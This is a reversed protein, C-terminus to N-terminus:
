APVPARRQLAAAAVLLVVAGAVGAAGDVWLMATRGWHDAVWGDAQFMAYIPVNSLSALVNYKTAAAGKGIVELAFGTFAAYSLGLAVNYALVTVAHAAPTRPGAAMAFGSIAVALGALVYARRREVADSLRGGALCGLISAIGGLVGNSTAM